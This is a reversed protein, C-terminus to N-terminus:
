GQAVNMNKLLKIKVWYDSAKVHFGAQSHICKSQGALKQKRLM